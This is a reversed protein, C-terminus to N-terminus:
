YKSRNNQGQQTRHKSRQPKEKPCDKSCANVKEEFHESCRRSCHEFGGKNSEPNPCKAVCQQMPAMAKETCAAECTKPKNQSGAASAPLALLAGGLMLLGWARGVRKMTRM